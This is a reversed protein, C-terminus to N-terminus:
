RRSPALWDDDKASVRSLNGADARWAEGDVDARVRIFAQRNSRDTVVGRRRGM